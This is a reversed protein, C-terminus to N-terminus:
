KFQHSFRQRLGYITQQFCLSAHVSRAVAGFPVGLLLAASGHGLWQAETGGVHLRCYDRSLYCCKGMQCTPCCQEPLVASSLFAHSLM